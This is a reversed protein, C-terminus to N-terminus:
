FLSALMKFLYAGWGLVRSEYRPKGDELYVMFVNEGNGSVFHFEKEEYCIVLRANRQIFSPEQRFNELAHEFCTRLKNTMCEQSELRYMVRLLHRISLLETEPPSPCLYMHSDREKGIYSPEGNHCFVFIRDDGDNYLYELDERNCEIVKKTDNQVLECEKVMKLVDNFYTRLMRTMKGKSELKSRMQLLNETSLPELYCSNSVHSTGEM